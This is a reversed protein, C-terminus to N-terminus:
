RPSSGHPQQQYHERLLDVGFDGTFDRWVSHIHNANNQTDDYEILFTPGQVRYYHYDGKEIGGAWAFSVQDLGAAQLKARREAALDNPMRALYVDILRTLQAKQAPTMRTATLGVPVLPEVQPRNMTLIDSPAKEQIIAVTRQEADLSQILARGEDEEEALARFGQRPGRPIQAPNSGMFLPTTSILEGRVVTVNLSLHHGEFRWGWPTRASPTGFLSLYYLQPDRPHIREKGELEFLVPELDIISTAKRYGDAGLGTRLFAFALQRQQESLDKLPIGFRARPVFYFEKRQGDELRFAAKARQEPTLSALFANAGEAMALALRQRAIAEAVSYGIASLLGGVLLTAVLFRLARHAVGRRGRLPSVGEGKFHEIRELDNSM